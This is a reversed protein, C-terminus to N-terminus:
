SVRTAVTSRVRSRWCKKWPSRCSTTSNWTGPWRPARLALLEADTIKRNDVQLVDWAAQNDFLKLYTNAWDVRETTTLAFRKSYDKYVKAKAAYQGTNELNQLLRTWALRHAPYKRLYAHLWAEAQPRHAM